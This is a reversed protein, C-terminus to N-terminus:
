KQIKTLKPGIEIPLRDCKPIAKARTDASKGLFIVCVVEGSRYNKKYSWSASYQSVNPNRGMKPRQQLWGPWQILGHTNCLMLILQNKGLFHVPLRERTWQEQKGFGM